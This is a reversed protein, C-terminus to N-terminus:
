CGVSTTNEAADGFVSGLKLQAKLNPKFARMGGVCIIFFFLLDFFGRKFFYISCYLM